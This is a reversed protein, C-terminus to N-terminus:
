IDELQSRYINFIYGKYALTVIGFGRAAAIIPRDESFYERLESESKGTLDDGTVNKICEYCWKEYNKAIREIPNTLLADWEKYTVDKSVVNIKVENNM